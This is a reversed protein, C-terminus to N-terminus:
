SEQTRDARIGRISSLPVWVATQANGSHKGVSVDRILQILGESIDLVTFRGKQGHTNASSDRLFMPEGRDWEIEVVQKVLSHVAM